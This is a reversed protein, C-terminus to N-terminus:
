PRPASRGWRRPPATSNLAPAMAVEPVGGFLQFSGRRMLVSAALGFLMYTVDYYAWSLFFSTVSFGLMALAVLPAMLGEGDPTPRIRVLQVISGLCLLLYSIGVIVGGEAAAQVFSNHPASWKIGKGPTAEGALDRGEATRFNGLGVGTVPYTVTYQMGRRWLNKRGSYSTTNYDEESGISAIRALYEKPLFPVGVVFAAALLLATARLRPIGHQKSFGLFLFGAAIAVLGLFGGRSDSSVVVYLLLPISGVMLKGALSKHDLVWWVILPIAILCILAIDNADYVYGGSLRGSSDTRGRVVALVAAAVCGSALTKLLLKLGALTRGIVLTMTAGLIVTLYDDTFVRYSHGPYISLPMGILFIVVMLGVLRVMWHKALEAPRWYDITGFSLLLATSGLLMPLRLVALIPVHMHFRSISLFLFLAVIWHM